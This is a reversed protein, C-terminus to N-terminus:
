QEELIDVNIGITLAGITNGADVIPVSVQVMYAQASEDFKVDGIHTAGQGNNFSKTFKDEDGQWYDSTKNTMAVNAGQNDMLFLEFFYPKSKELKALEKAAANEMLPKMFDDIGSTKRWTADRAKIADLTQQKANQEKVAAILTPNEGWTRLEDALKNVSDPAKEANVATTTLCLTFIAVLQYIYRMKIEKSYNKAHIPTSAYVVHVASDVVFWALM